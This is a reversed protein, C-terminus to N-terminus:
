HESNIM